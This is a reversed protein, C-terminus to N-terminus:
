LQDGVNEFLGMAVFTFHKIRCRSKTNLDLFVVFREYCCVGNKIQLRRLLQSNSLAEAMQQISKPRHDFRLLGISGRTFGSLTPMCEFDLTM